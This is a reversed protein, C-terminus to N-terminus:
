ITVIQSNACIATTASTITLKATTTTSYVGTNSLKEWVSGGVPYKQWQYTLTPSGTAVVAFTTSAGSTITKAAPQTTIAPATAAFCQNVLLFASLALFCLSGLHLKM